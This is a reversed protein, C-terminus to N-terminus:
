SASAASSCRCAPSSCASPKSPAPSKTSFIWFRIRSTSPSITRRRGACRPPLPPAGHAIGGQRRILDAVSRAKVQIEYDPRAWFARTFQTIPVIIENDAGGSEAFGGQKALVGVVRFDHGNASITAGVPSEALFLNTALDAGIVCVPRGGDCEAATLFRGDALTLGGTIQFQETTGLVPADSTGRKKYKVPTDDQAVPAVASALKMERLLANAEDYAAASPNGGAEDSQMKQQVMDSEVLTIKPNKMAKMWEQVSNIFWGFRDVYLMDAGISSVSNM